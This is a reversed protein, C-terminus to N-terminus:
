LIQAKRTILFDFKERGFSHNGSKERADGNIIPVENEENSIHTEGQRITYHTRTGKELGLAYWKRWQVISYSVNAPTFCM